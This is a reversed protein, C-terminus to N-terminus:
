LRKFDLCILSDKTIGVVSGTKVEHDPFSNKQVRFFFYKRNSGIATLVDMGSVVGYYLLKPQKPNGYNFVALNKGVALSIKDGTKLKAQTPKKFRQLLSKFMDM